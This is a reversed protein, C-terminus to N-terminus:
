CALVWSGRNRTRARSQPPLSSGRVSALVSPLGFLGTLLPFLISQGLGEWADLPLTAEMCTLGLLGSLLM